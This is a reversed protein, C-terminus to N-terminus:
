FVIKTSKSILSFIIPKFNPNHYGHQLQIKKGGDKDIIDLDM